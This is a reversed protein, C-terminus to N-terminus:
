WFDNQYNLNRHSKFQFIISLFLHFDSSIHFYLYLSFIFFWNITVIIFNLLFQIFLNWIISQFCIDSFISDNFLIKQYDSLKFNRHSKLNSFFSLYRLSCYFWILTYNFWSVSFSTSINLIFIHHYYFDAQITVVIFDIHCYNYLNLCNGNFLSDSLNNWIRRLLLDSYFRYLKMFQLKLEVAFKSLDEM